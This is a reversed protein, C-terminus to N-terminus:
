GTIGNLLTQMSGAWSDLARRGAPTLKLLTRPKRGVFEKRVSLYGADELKSMHSSLNGRTLGTQNQVFVFDASDVVYLTSLILLRAPEHVIRDLDDFGPEHAKEKSAKEKSAKEKSM